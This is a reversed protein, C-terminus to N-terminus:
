PDTTTTTTTGDWVGVTITIPESPDQLGDPSSSLVVGDQAENSTSIPNVVVSFGAATLIATAEGESMGVVGPVALPCEGNGGVQPECPHMLIIRREGRYSWPFEERELENGDSDYFIRTNIIRWGGSGKNAIVETGPPVTGEEDARYLTSASTHNFRDGRETGCTIGGNSGFFTVTISRPTYSTRIIVPAKTDNLFAVDPHPYGLTAERGEPYKRFYISHPQHTVDELCAFYIANFITTGFQSVGGGVNVPEQECSLEGGVIACDYKFGKQLTRRGVIENVSFEEGPMVITEDVYDAMLHINHVRNTGPTRTTFEALEYLDGFAAAMETTFAPEANKVIPLEGKGTALAAAEVAAAIQAADVTTGKLGPVLTITDNDPLAAREAATLDDELSDKIEYQDPYDEFDDVLVTEWHADVPLIELGERVAEVLPAIASPDVSFEISPIDDSLVIDSELARGLDSSGVHFEFGYESNTLVVGRAIIANAHEVADDIDTETLQPVAEVIPLVVIRHDASELAELMLEAAPERDIAEGSRPYEHTVISNSIEISGEFAPNPIAAQEWERLVTEVMEADLSAVLPVDVEDTFASIWDSIGDKHTGLAENVAAASDFSLGVDNPDLEYITGNVDVRAVQAVVEETYVAVSATAETETQRAVDVGAITVNRAVRDSAAASDVFYISLPLMLILVPAAIFLFIRSKSAAM